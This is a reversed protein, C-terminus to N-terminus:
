STQLYYYNMVIIISFKISREIYPLFSVVRSAVLVIFVHHRM